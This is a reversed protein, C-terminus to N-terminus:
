SNASPHPHIRVRGGRGRGGRGEGEGHHPHMGCGETSGGSFDYKGAVRECVDSSPRRLSFLCYALGDREGVHNESRPRVINEDPVHSGVHLSKSTSVVL